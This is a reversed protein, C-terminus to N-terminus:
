TVIDETLEIIVSITPTNSLEAATSVALGFCVGQNFTWSPNSYGAAFSQEGNNLGTSRLGFDNNFIIVSCYSNSLAESARISFGTYFSNRIVTFEGFPVADMGASLEIVFPGYTTRFASAPIITDDPEPLGEVSGSFIVPQHFVVPSESSDPVNEQIIGKNSTFTTKISM